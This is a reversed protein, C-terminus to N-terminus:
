LEDEESGIQRNKLSKKYEENDVNIKWDTLLLVIPFSVALVALATVIRGATGSTDFYSYGAVLSLVGLVGAAASAFVLFYLMKKLPRHIDGDKLFDWYGDINSVGQILVATALAKPEGLVPFASIIIVPLCFLLKRFDTLGCDFLTKYKIM